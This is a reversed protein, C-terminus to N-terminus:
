GAPAGTRIAAINRIGPARGILILSLGWTALLTDLPRNYLRRIILREMIWGFFGVIIFALPLCIIFPISPTISPRLHHLRRAHHVRWAGINIVGMTGYIITLGIAALLWISALSLGIFLANLFPYLEFPTWFDNVSMNQGTEQRASRDPSQADVGADNHFGGSCNIYGVRCLAATLARVHVLQQQHSLSGCAGICPAQAEKQFKCSTRRGSRATRLACVM